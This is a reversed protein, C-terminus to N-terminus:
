CEGPRPPPPSLVMEAVIPWQNAMRDIFKYCRRFKARAQERLVQDDHHCYWLHITAAVSAGYALFPDSIPFEKEDIMKIFIDIWNSHLMALSSCNDLFTFPYPESRVNMEQVVLFPHHLICIITHYTFQAFIWPGWYGTSAQLAQSNQESFRGSKYRHLYPLRTEFVMLSESVKSYGSDILWPAKSGPKVRARSYQLAEQWTETLQFTYAVIGFDEGLVAGRGLDERGVPHPTFPIPSSRPYQPRMESLSLLTHQGDNCMLSMMYFSWFVCRREEAMIPSLINGTDAM